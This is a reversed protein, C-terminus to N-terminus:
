GHSELSSDKTMQTLRQGSPDLEAVVSLAWEAWENLEASMGQHNSATSRIHEIYDRIRNSQAWRNAEESLRDRRARAEARTREQEARIRAAEERQRREEELRRHFAQHERESQWSKVVLGCIRSFIRNLQQELPKSDRDLFSPGDRYDFQLTIRLRGTPVQYTEQEVQGNYRKIPRTKQELLESLRLQTEADHGAFIIRGQEEDERVTFGRAPAALVLANVIHLARKYSGLSVRFCTARHTHWLRQGRDRVTRWRWANSDSEVRKRWEPWKDYKDSAKKSERLEEAAKELDDRCNAIAADWKRTIAPVEIVNAPLEEFALREQLWADDREATPGDATGETGEDAGCGDLRSSGERSSSVTLASHDSREPERHPLKPRYPQQGADVRAWYGRGPVPIGLRRCRKALAVDSIGFDKALGLMPKSWALEYLDERSLTLSDM